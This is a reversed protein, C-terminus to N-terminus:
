QCYLFITFMIGYREFVMLFPQEQLTKLYAYSTFKVSEYKFYYFSRLKWLPGIRKTEGRRFLGWGGWGRTHWEMSSHMACCGAKGHSNQDILDSSGLQITTSAQTCYLRLLMPQVGGETCRKLPNKNKEMLPPPNSLCPIREEIRGAKETTALTAIFLIACYKM